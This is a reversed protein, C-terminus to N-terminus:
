FARIVNIKSFELEPWRLIMYIKYYSGLSMGYSKEGYIYAHGERYFCQENHPLSTNQPLKPSISPMMSARAM